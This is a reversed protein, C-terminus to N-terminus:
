NVLLINLRLISLLSVTCVYFPCKSYDRIVRYAVCKEYQSLDCNTTIRLTCQKEFRYYLTCNKSCYASIFLFLFFKIKLFM